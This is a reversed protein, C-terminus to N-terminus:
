LTSRVVITFAIITPIIAASLLVGAANLARDGRRMSPVGTSTVPGSALHAAGACAAAAIVLLVSLAFLGAITTNPSAM